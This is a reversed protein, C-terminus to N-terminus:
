INLKCDENNMGEAAPFKLWKAFNQGAMCGAVALTIAAGAGPTIHADQVQYLAAIREDAKQYLEHMDVFTGSVENMAQLVREDIWAGGIASTWNRANIWSRVGLRDLIKSRYRYNM